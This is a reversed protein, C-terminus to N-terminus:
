LQFYERYWDVFKKIGAELSTSPKFGTDRVLDEIDACTSEVDGVQMPLFEKEAKRNLCSELLEILRMLQEPKNNGINYLRYPASSTGPDAKIPDWGANVKPPRDLVRIIGEVIDDIYTFDRQM